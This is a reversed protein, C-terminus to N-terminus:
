DASFWIMANTTIANKVHKLNETTVTIPINEVHRWGASKGMEVLASIGDIAVDIGGAETRNNGMVFFANGGPRVLRRLQLVAANLDTFYRYLLAGMNKRRFGADDSADNLEFVRKATEYAVSSGLAEATSSALRQELELRVKNQIERSGTLSREIPVRRKASMGQITLLSLRDTDIYPLATAYPPSTVVLDVSAPGLGLRDFVDPSRNDGEAITPKVMRCPAASTAVAFHRLRSRLNSVRERFLRLTPADTIPQARRRVRLDLPDQHSVERIVSSLCVRLAQQVSVLPVKEIEAILWGLTMVVSDPFWSRIEDLCETPFLESHTPRSGDSATQELFRSLLRDVEYLDETLLITKAQAILVALPNMDCGYTRLGNLQGELLVTGSGCYPDLTVSGPEADALNFLSKALQPYFKGKYAHIGHTVYKPEKKARLADFAEGNELIAQWTKFESVPKCSVRHAFTLRRLRDFQFTDCEFESAFPQSPKRKLKLLTDLERKALAEEYPWLTYPPPALTVLTRCEPRRLVLLKETLARRASPIFSRKHQPLSREVIGLVRWGVEDAVSALQKATDICEGEFVSDGVVFVALRGPRMFHLVNRLCGKMEEAYADFGTGQRQHRLHSGIECAGLDKPDFGLWYLRFRHYLHYDFANAYPPSTVLLDISNPRLNAPLSTTTANINLLNATAFEGARYRLHHQIPEHRRLAGALSEAVMALVEGPSVERPRRTYRTESDQWSARVVIASLCVRAFWQAQQHPLQSVANFAFALERMANQHFWKEGNPITPSWHSASQGVIQQADDPHKALVSLRDSLALLEATAEPSLTLCKARAIETALPNADTSVARRGLRLAELATTGSGGFCDWVTEGRLSLLEILHSPIQPIFKAPYPHLDHSLYDTKDKAFAWDVGGLTELVRSDERLDGLSQLADAAITPEFSSRAAVRNKAKAM